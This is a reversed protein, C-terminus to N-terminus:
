GHHSDKENNIHRTIVGRFQTAKFIEPRYNHITNRHMLDARPLCELNALDLHQKNGDMFVIVHGQPVAGHATEWLIVHVFKWRHHRPMDDNVKRQLYGDKTVHETGIPQYKKHAALAHMGKKFQTM